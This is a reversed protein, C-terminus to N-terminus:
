QLKILSVSSQVGFGVLQDLQDAFYFNKSNLQPLQSMLKENSAIILVDFGLHNALYKSVQSVSPVCRDIDQYSQSKLFVTVQDLQNQKLRYQINNFIKSQYDIEVFILVLNDIELLDLIQDLSELTKIQGKQIEFSNSKILWDNQGVIEANKNLGAKTEVYFNDLKLIPVIPPLDDIPSGFFNLQRGLISPSLPMEVFSDFFVGVTDKVGFGSADGFLAVKTNAISCSQVQGTIELDLYSILVKQGVFSDIVNDFIAFEFNIISCLYKTM